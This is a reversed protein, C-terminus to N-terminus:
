RPPVGKAGVNPTGANATRSLLEIYSLLDAADVENLALDPMRVSPYQKRLELAMPDQESRLRDPNGIYRLLWDRPRRADIGVLDPGVRSGAGVTHCSACMRNFLAQGPTTPMQYGHNSASDIPATRVKARWVPDMARLDLVFRDLDGFVTNRQWEGTADNGLLVENRHQTLSRMREGFKDNIIRMDEYKGTLFQWGPGSHFASAFGALKEPTDNEPDVSLSIFHISQGLEDGLREAAEALRATTLPCIDTCRTFIFSVVVIRGKIVDDYFNLTEGRQNQVPLNPFYGAGWRRTQAEATAVLCFLGVSLAGAMLALLRGATRLRGPLGM